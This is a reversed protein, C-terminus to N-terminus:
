DITGLRPSRSSGSVAARTGVKDIAHNQFTRLDFDALAAAEKASAARQGSRPEQQGKILAFKRTSVESLGTLDRAFHLVSAEAHEGEGLSASTLICRMRERPIELRQALRRILLAVEAGGAGETCIRKTWFLFLNMTRM